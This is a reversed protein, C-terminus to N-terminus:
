KDNVNDLSGAVASDLQQFSDQVQRSSLEFLEKGQAAREKLV